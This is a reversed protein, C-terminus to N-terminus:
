RRYTPPRPSVLRQRRGRRTEPIYEAPSEAYSQYGCALCSKYEGRHDSESIMLGYCKPCNM